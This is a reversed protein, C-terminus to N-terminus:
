NQIAQYQEIAVLIEAVSMAAIVEPQKNKVRTGGIPCHLNEISAADYHNDGLWSKLVARKTPSGIMGVYVADGRALAEGTILFDLSHDHTTIIYVAGPKAERVAEEPLALNLMKHKESVTAYEPRTDIIRIDMGLPVLADALALGTHGAGFILVEISPQVEELKSFKNRINEDVLRYSIDLSGGCCQDIEPGLTITQHETFKSGSIFGRAAKVAVWEASGGGITGYIKKRGVIMKAGADRPTSGKAQLLEILYCPEGSALVKDFHAATLESM